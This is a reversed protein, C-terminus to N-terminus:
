THGLSKKVAEKIKGVSPLVAGRLAPANPVPVDPNCVRYAPASLSSFAETQAQFAIEAAVGCRAYDEDVVVLHHTKRVSSIVTGLDLPTLTRLDIVEIAIGEDALEIGAQEALRVMYGVAVVTCSDGEILTRASGFPVSYDGPPVPGRQDFLQAHQVFVVPDNARLATKMLGKADYPTAPVAVKVGIARM